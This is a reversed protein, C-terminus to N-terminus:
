APRGADIRGDQHPESRADEPRPSPATRLPAGVSAPSRRDRVDSLDGADEAPTPRGLHYGQGYHVGLVRLAELEAATEIGEAVLTLQLTQGLQVIAGTVARDEASTVIGDVFSKDIKLVNIPFLRLYSLSSYGTGFDDLALRVGLEKIERLKGITRATDYAFLSETIEVTLLRPDLGSRGLADRIDRLLDPHQFQRVSVNVTVYREQGAAQWAAAQRTAERLVWRGIPVILGSEEALTIFQLPPVLGRDPHHWRLLAECGSVQGSTLDVIPQYHLVFQQAEVAQHLDALLRERELQASHHSPQFVECRGKGTTKAVYMAVDAARLLGIGSTACTESTALGISVGAHVPQDALVVPQRLSALIRAAVSGAQSSSRTGVLLAAFEDGALRALTDEPRLCAQIRASVVRLLTDGCEHGLNDNVTKLNDLDIFLVAAPTGEASELQEAARLREMFLARNPLGTLPDHFAQTRLQDELQKRDSVDRTTLVIGNVSPDSLLDNVVTEVWRWSGNRHRMRSGISPAQGIGGVTGTLYEDFAAVDDPHVLERVDGGLLAAPSYGLVWGVSPTQYTIRGSAEVVTIVDSANHVLSRFHEQAELADLLSNFARATEGLQDDSDVAIRDATAGSWDGTRSAHTITQTVRRLHAGLVALRGGVVCRCVGYSMAGVLFGAVLCAAVFSPRNAYPAPVGLGTAFPPFVLGVILGLGVMYVALDWFVRRTLRFGRRRRPAPESSSGTSDM